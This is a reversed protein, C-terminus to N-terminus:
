QEEGAYTLHRSEAYVKAAHEAEARGEETAPWSWGSANIILQDPMEIVQWFGPSILTIAIYRKM